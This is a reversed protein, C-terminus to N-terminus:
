PSILRRLLERLERQEAAALPALFEQEARQLAATAERLVRRGGATAALAYARRADPDRSRELLGARELADVVAVMTTRDVGQREGLRQQTLPGEEVLVSLAGFEKVGLGISGLERQAVARHALHARGLLFGLRESLAAPLEDPPLQRAM